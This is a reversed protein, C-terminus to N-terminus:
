YSMFGQLPLHCADMALALKHSVGAKVQLYWISEM